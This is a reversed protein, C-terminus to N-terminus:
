SRRHWPPPGASMAEADLIRLPQRGRGERYRCLSIPIPLVVAAAAKAETKVPLGGASHHPPPVPKSSLAKSRLIVHHFPREGECGRGPVRLREQRPRLNRSLPFPQRSGQAAACLIGSTTSAINRSGGSQQGGRESRYALFIHDRPVKRAVPTM